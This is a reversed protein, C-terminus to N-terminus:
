DDDEDFQTSLMYESSERVMQLDTMVTPLDEVSLYSAM